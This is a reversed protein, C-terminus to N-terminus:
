KGYFKGYVMSWALRNAEARSYGGEYELIARREKYAERLHEAQQETLKKSTPQKTQKSHKTEYKM